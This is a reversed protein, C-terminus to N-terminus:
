TDPLGKFTNITIGLDDYNAPVLVTGGEANFVDFAYNGITPV